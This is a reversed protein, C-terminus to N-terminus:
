VSARLAVAKLCVHRRTPRRCLGVLEPGTFGLLPVAAGVATPLLKEITFTQHRLDITKM